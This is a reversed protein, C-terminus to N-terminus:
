NGSEGRGNERIRRRCKMGYLTAGSVAIGILTLIIAYTFMKYYGQGGLDIWNGVMSYMFTDPLYGIAAILGITGGICAEDISNESLMTYYLAKTGYVTISFIGFGLIGLLLFSSGHLQMLFNLLSVLIIVFGGFIMKYSSKSKDALYGALIAGVVQMGYRWMSIAQSTELSLGYVKLFFSPIFSLFTYMSYSLFVVLGMNWVKYNLVVKKLEQGLTMTQRVHLYEDPVILVMGIGVIINLVAYSKIVWEFGFRSGGLARFMIQIILFTLGAFVGKGAEALGLIRGQEYRTGLSIFIRIATSFFTMVTTVGMLAFIIKLEGYDPFSSFWFGLIGTGVFPLLLIWRSHIRDSLIGGMFYVAVCVCSYISSLAGFEKNTLNLAQCIPIYFSNRIYPLEFIISWGLVVALFTSMKKFSCDM